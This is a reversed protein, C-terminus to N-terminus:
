LESKSAVALFCSADALSYSAVGTPSANQELVEVKNGQVATVVAVHGATASARVFLDGANPAAATTTRLGTPFDGNTCWSAADASFHDTLGHTSALYRQALEVASYQWGFAGQGGCHGSTCHKAGNSLAAVGGYSALTEGCAPASQCSTPRTDKEVVLPSALPPPPKPVYEEALKEKLAAEAPLEKPAPEDASLDDYGGDASVDEVYQFPDDAFVMPMLLAAVM